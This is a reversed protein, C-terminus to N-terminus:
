AFSKGTFVAVGAFIKRLNHFPANASAAAVSTQTKTLALYIKTRLPQSYITSASYHLIVANAEFIGLKSPTVALRRLPTIGRVIKTPFKKAAKDEQM